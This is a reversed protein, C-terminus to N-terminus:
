AAVEKPRDIHRRHERWAIFLGSAVILPAGIWTTDAPLTGFFWWGAAISWLLSSYDMPIVVSVPALRLAGTLSMQVVAGLFGLGALLLWERGDHPTIVFPLAIGLPIMSLLSFWFVITAANETRGLDRVAITILATMIAGSLAVLTGVGHDGGFGGAFGAIPDLVLLVGVFGVIVASWRQWGTAEGLLIAAFIVAFIPVSLSITTAEAMPLLIMAGFNCAMGTLGMVMRRAHAGIRRTRLSALGSTAMVWALLFPLVLAQRWFLSEVIHVGAADVYKVLVFMFSLSVMALLRLSIGGLYHQPPGALQALSPAATMSGMRMDAGVARALRSGGKM